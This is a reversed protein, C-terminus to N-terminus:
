IKVARIGGSWCGFRLAEMSGKIDVNPGPTRTADLVFRMELWNELDYEQKYM